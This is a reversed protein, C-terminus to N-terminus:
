ACPKLAKTTGSQRKALQGCAPTGLKVQRQDRHGAAITFGRDRLHNCGDQTDVRWLVAQRRLAIEIIVDADWQGQEIQSLVMANGDDLQAHVM